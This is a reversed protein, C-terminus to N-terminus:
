IVIYCSLLTSEGFRVESFTNEMSQLLQLAATSRHEELHCGEQVQHEIQLDHLYGIIHGAIKYTATKIIKSNEYSTPFYGILVLRSYDL